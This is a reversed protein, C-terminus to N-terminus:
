GNSNGKRLLGLAYSEAVHDHVWRHCTHSLLRCNGAVHNNRRRRQVHHGHEDRGNCGDAHREVGEPGIGECRRGVQARREDKAAEWEDRVQAQRTRAKKSTVMRTRAMPKSPRPMPTKRELPASRKM